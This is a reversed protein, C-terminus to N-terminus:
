NITLEDNLLKIFDTINYTGIDGKDRNRVSLNDNQLENDGLILMFPIKELQSKRIKYALKEDQYDTEARFGQETLFKEIKNAYNHHNELIPILKIQIPSLWLPFRGAYHEILIGIFRELSGLIARHIMVPTHKQGDSGEYTLGLREPMSFDVQITGCQWYRELCDEINFEIKPGYFAGEGEKINYDMKLSDLADKLAQTAKDWVDDNGIYKDPKTAVFINYKNFGVKKYVYDTYEILKIIEEKIQEVTCFIHADDQTFNRVRFLGHLVGSLEHRHVLGFEAIKIPLEKYSHLRTKYILCHGPCNMPKVAFDREDIKTFYMNEKFNDYHGSAHWLSEHLIIPTKVEDYKRKKNEDRIFNLLADYLMMGKPHWFPFGTGENHFSFLDLDKGIKRHDRKKAEELRNLYAKLDKENYFATGYIRQLMQKNSDGRWYAGAVSLLKFSKLFGTNPIHPGRCLDTFDGQTYITVNEDGLEKIGEIIEVKYPDNRKKFYEIADNVSITERKFHSQESVIQNMESEIANLDEPTFPKEVEFDYYFGDKIAPGIAYKADPFLRKVAQAMIHSASHRFIEKGESDNFTLIKVESDEMISTCLDVMVDNVIAGIADKALNKGIDLAVRDIKIGAEYERNSGDPLKVIIKKM